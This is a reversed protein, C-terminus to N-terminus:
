DGQQYWAYESGNWYVIASARGLAELFLGDGILKPPIERSDGRQIQHFKPVAYWNTLWEFDTGGNGFNRGAGLIILKGLKSVIMIGTNASDREQVFLAVDLQGDGNFDGNQYFPNLSFNLDFQKNAGQNDATKLIWDPLNHRVIIYSYRQDWSKNFGLSTQNQKTSQSLALKSTRAQSSEENCSGLMLTFILAFVRM